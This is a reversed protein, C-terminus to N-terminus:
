LDGMLLKLDVLASTFAYLAYNVSIRAKNLELEANQVDFITNSGIEYAKTAISHSKEALKVVGNLSSLRDLNTLVQEYANRASLELQDTVQQESLLFSDRDAIAQQLRQYKQTGSFLNWNVGIFVKENNGWDASSFKKDFQGFKGISAGAFVVPNFDKKALQVMQNRVESIGKLQKLTNNNKKVNEIVQDISILFSAQPFEGEVSFDAVEDKLGCATILNVYAMRRDSEAKKLDIGANEFHLRATLTDFESSTGGKFRMVALRYEEISVDVAERQIEVNKQSLLAGYFLKTVSGILKIKEDHYKCLLTVEYTKAIRVGVGIKGQAFIPQKLSLTLNATNSPFKILDNINFSGAPGPGAQLSKKLYNSTNEDALVRSIAGDSSSLSSLIPNYISFAHSLNFSADVVPMASGVAEQVQSEAKKLEQEVIKLQKSNNVAEDIIEDIKYIKSSSTAVFMIVQLCVLVSIRM